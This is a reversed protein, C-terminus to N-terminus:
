SQLKACLSQWAAAKLRKKILRANSSPKTCGPARWTFNVTTTLFRVSLETRFNSSSRTLQALMLPMKSSYRHRLVLRQWCLPHWRVTGLKVITYTSLKPWVCNEIWSSLRRGSTPRSRDRQSAASWRFWNILCGRPRSSTFVLTSLVRTMLSWTSQKACRHWLSTTFALICRTCLSLHIPKWRPTPALGLLSLQLPSRATQDSPWISTSPRFTAIIQLICKRLRPLSKPTLRSTIQDLCNTVLRKSPSSILNSQNGLKIVM